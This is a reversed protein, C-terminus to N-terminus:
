SIMRGQGQWYPEKLKRRWIKGFPSKPLEKVFDVSKPKKYSALHKRCHEIIEEETAKMGSRVSIVAKVAEGWTEDPVGFVAAELVAPHSYLVDEVEKPYINFGGSVIMDDKRDVLYIYGDEDMHGMDRTHLWGGRLTEATAEPKKWYGEMVQDSRVVIEGVQGPPLLSGSEDMIRVTAVYVERGISNLRKLKKESGDLVHDEKLLLTVPMTAETLGYGQVFINGFVEIARKLVNPSIPSAGYRINKLSSLDYKKLEPYALLMVIMTPVLYLTTIREKQIMELLMREDFGPLLVVKAGRVIHPLIMAGSAHTVPATLAVADGEQIRLGEMLNNFVMIVNSRHTHIVGKPQGTTGATYRLNIIDHDFIEVEPKQSSAKALLDEYSLMGEGAQGTACIPWSVTPAEPLVSAIVEQFENGLLIARADSDNLMYLHERASYRSNMPVLVLGSCALGYFCEVSQHCNNLLVAVRDGKKLGLSLLANGLRYVRELLEKTTLRTDKFVVATHNPFRVASKALLDGINM